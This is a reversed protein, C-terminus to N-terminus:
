IRLILRAVFNLNRITGYHSQLESCATVFAFYCYTIKNGESKSLQIVFVFLDYYFASVIVM